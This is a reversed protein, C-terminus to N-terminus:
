KQEKYDKYSQHRLKKCDLTLSNLDSINTGVAIGIVSKLYKSDSQYVNDILQNRAMYKLNKCKNDDQNKRCEEGNSSHLVRACHLCDSDRYCKPNSYLKRFFYNSSIKYASIKEIRDRDILKLSINAVPVDLIM